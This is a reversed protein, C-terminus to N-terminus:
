LQNLCPNIRLQNKLTDTPTKGYNHGTHLTLHPPLKSIKRLSELMKEPDSGFLDTRGCGDIFLTDGTILDDELLFCGSGPSHGPTSIFTVSTKGLQLLMNDKLPLTEQPIKGFPHADPHLALLNIEFESLYIPVPQIEILDLVANVHDFHAHTLWIAVLKADYKNLNELIQNADWSPDFVVADRTENDVLIHSYNEWAGVIDSHITYTKSPM